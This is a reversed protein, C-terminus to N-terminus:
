LKTQRLMLCASGFGYPNLQSLKIAALSGSNSSSFDESKEMGRAETRGPPDQTAIHLINSLRECLARAMDMYVRNKLSM